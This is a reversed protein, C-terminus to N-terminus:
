RAFGSLRLLMPTLIFLAGALAAVAIMAGRLDSADAQAQVRPISAGWVGCFAGFAVYASAVLARSSHSM